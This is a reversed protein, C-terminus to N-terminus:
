REVERKIFEFADANLNERCFEAAREGIGELDPRAIEIGFSIGDLMGATAVFESMADLDFMISAPIDLDVFKLYESCQM